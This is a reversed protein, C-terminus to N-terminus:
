RRNLERAAAAPTGVPGPAVSEEVRVPDPYALNETSARRGGPFHGDTATREALAASGTPPPTQGLSRGSSM